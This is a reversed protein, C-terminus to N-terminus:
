IYINSSRCSLKHVIMYSDYIDKAGGVGQFITIHCVRGAGGRLGPGVYKQGM